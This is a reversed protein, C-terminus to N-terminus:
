PKRIVIWHQTAPLDVGQAPLSSSRELTRRVAARIQDLGLPERSFFGGFYETGKSEDLILSGPLAIERGDALPVSRSGGYPHYAVVKGSPEVGVLFFYGPSGSSVVFRLADGPFFSDGSVGHTVEGGRQRFFTVSTGKIRVEDPPPPPAPRVALFVIGAAACAGALALPLRFFRWPRRAASGASVVDLVRRVPPSAAVSDFLALRGRCRECVELHAVGGRPEDGAVIRDLALDSLCGQPHLLANV